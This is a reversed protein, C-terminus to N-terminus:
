NLSLVKVSDLEIKSLLELGKTEFLSDIKFISVKKDIPKLNNYDVFRIGEVYRENYAERFRIGGGDVHFEYALFDPKYTEKNFWYLYTDDFDEGGDKQSFTVKVKYYANDGIKREGLLEKKVAPDNLGYPLRAFYHVSNVSNSYRTAISDSVDILSDNFFRKFYNHGKVDTIRLSDTYTIRKLIKKGEFVESIYKRDRFLFSVQKESHLKGGSIAISKNVIDQATLQKKTEGVCANLAVILLFLIIKKM